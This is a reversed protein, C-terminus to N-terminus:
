NSSYCPSLLTRCAILIYDTKAILMKKNICQWNFRMIYEIYRNLLHFYKKCDTMISKFEIHFLNESGKPIMEEISKTKAAKQTLRNIKKHFNFFECILM